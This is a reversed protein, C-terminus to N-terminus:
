LKEQSKQNTMKDVNYEFVCHQTKNKKENSTKIKEDNEGANMNEQENEDEAETM